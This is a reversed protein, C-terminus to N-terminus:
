GPLLKFVQRFIWILLYWDPDALMALESATNSLMPLTLAQGVALFVGTIAGGLIAGRIGGTANGFVGAAGGPFFLMIMPPVIVAWGATGFILMLIVFAAFASLFGILVATPAFDFVIPCDLAPRAKPVIKLAIGRFAPVIEALIMRVGVLLVSTGAGFKFGELLAFVVHNMKGAGKVAEPGAFIAGIAAFLGVILSTSVTVDRLFGLNKPLRVNETSHEPNGLWKGFLAALFVNSSSTHGYALEDTGTVRRMFPQVYLPQLTWYLGVVISGAVIMTTHSINPKVELMVAILVLSIWFMLHGTLYIYKARTLRALVVNILFGLTMIVAALGSYQAMFKDLGMGRVPPQKVGFAAQVIPTFNQLAQVLTGAGIVIILLGAVVKMTGQVVENFSKGQAILGILAVFGLLLAPQSFINNALWRLVEM